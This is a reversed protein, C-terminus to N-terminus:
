YFSRSLRCGGGFTTKYSYNGGSDDVILRANDPDWRINPVPTGDVALITSGPLWTWYVTYESSEKGDIHIGTKDFINRQSILYESLTLKEGQKIFNEARNNKGDEKEGGYEKGLTKKLEPQATLDPADHLLVIRAENETEETRSIYDENEGWSTKNGKEKEYGETMKENLDKISPLKEPIFLVKNFGKKEIKETIADINKEWIDQMQEAFNAPIEINHNKYFVSFDEIEKEFDIKITEKKEKGKEDKYVYETSIIPTEILQKLEEANKDFAVKLKQAEEVKGTKTAEEVAKRFNNQLEELKKLRYEQQKKQEKKPLKRFKKLDDQSFLAASKDSELNSINPQQEQSKM